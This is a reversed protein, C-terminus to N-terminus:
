REALQEILAVSDAPSLAASRLRDVLLKGATVEADKQILLSGLAHEIYAVGPEGLEGFDLLTFGSMVQQTAAVRTPLVHLTVTPWAAAAVLHRLQESLVKPGGIPRNLVAEDIVTVLEMPANDATLRRQRIARVSVLSRLDAGSRSRALDAFLARTYESTQLLGPVFTSTYETVRVAETEFGVYSDDGLGYARWWGRQKAERTLDIIDAWDDGGVDYLDLMSRVWHVDVTQQASEIRSLKSASCDLKPAATELTYGARERLLRLLRGLQRRRVM